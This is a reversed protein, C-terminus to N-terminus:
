LYIFTFFFFFSSFFFSFSGSFGVFGRVVSFSCFFSSWCNSGLFLVLGLFAASGVTSRKPSPLYFFFCTVMLAVFCSLCQSANILMAKDDTHWLSRNVSNPCPTTLKSHEQLFPFRWLPAPMQRCHRQPVALASNWPSPLQGLLRWPKTPWAAEASFRPTSANVGM